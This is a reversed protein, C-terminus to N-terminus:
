TGFIEGGTIIYSKVTRWLDILPDLLFWEFEMIEMLSHSYISEIYSRHYYSSIPLFDYSFPLLESIDGDIFTM